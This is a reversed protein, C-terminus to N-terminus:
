LLADQRDDPIPGDDSMPEFATCRATGPWEIDNVDRVWEPPYAPDDRHFLLTMTAISCAPEDGRRFGADRQCRNCFAGMFIEGETGNSPRYRETEAM